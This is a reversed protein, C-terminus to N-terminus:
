LNTQEVRMHRTLARESAADLWRPGSLVGNLQVRLAVNAPDTESYNLVGIVWLGPAPQACRLQSQPSCAYFSEHDWADAEVRLLAFRRQEWDSVRPVAGHRLLLMAQGGRQELTITLKGRVLEPISLVFHMQQGPSLLYADGGTM